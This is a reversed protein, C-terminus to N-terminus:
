IRVLKWKGFVEELIIEQPYTGPPLTIEEGLFEVKQEADLKIKYVFKVTDDETIKESNRRAYEMESLMEDFANNKKLEKFNRKWREQKELVFYKSALEIDEKRLADLFLDFTEEPTKGGYKDEKYPREYEEQIKKAERNILLNALFEKGKVMAFIVFGAILAIILTGTWHKLSIKFKKNSKPNQDQQIFFDEM